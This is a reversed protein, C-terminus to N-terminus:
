NPNRQLYIDLHRIKGNKDFEYVSMSNVVSVNAGTGNREELELFVVGPAETIRRVSHDHGSSKSWKTLYSAYEPWTMVEKFPGVRRFDTVAVLKALPSWNADTFGPQKARVVLQKMLAIYQLVTRSLPGLKEGKPVVAARAPTVSLSQGSSQAHAPCAALVALFFLQIRGNM